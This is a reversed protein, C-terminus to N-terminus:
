FRGYKQRLRHGVVEAVTNCLFTFLFLLAGSLFLVRYLTGGHPAEPIEVAICASITRMGNFPSLDMIPTNGTAMLVIMTEGIARGFGLMLAAFIGPAAAPLVVRYTTQWRSAGLAESAAWLSKPVNSLADEAITFIVPVVAFGMAFGVVLANRPDYRLGLTGDLWAQVDGGFVAAEIVPGLTVALLFALALGPVTALVMRPGSSWRVRTPRPLARWALVLVVFGAVFAPTLTFVETLHREVLPSLWLAALLGIVVSPLAAMIEIVPKVVGRLGPSLFLATYVAAAIALPISFLLAYLVGKLSGFILTTISLKPEFDNSGGTSQWKLRPETAGEYWVPLFLTTPTVEPHPADLDFAALAGGEVAVFFGDNKPAFAVAEPRAAVRPTACLVRATTSHYFGGTGDAAYALFGKNRPAEDLATVPATLPPFDRIRRLSWNTAEPTPRVGFWGSLAGGADGVLLTEEGLLVRLATVPRDGAHISEFLEPASTWGLDWRLVRGDDLGAYVRFRDLFSAVEVSTARAGDPMDPLRAVRPSGLGGLRARVVHLEHGDGAVVLLNQERAVVGAVLTVPRGDALIPEPELPAVSTEVSRNAADDYAVQTRLEAMALRGDATGGLVLAPDATVAAAALGTPAGGPLLSTRSRVEGTAADLITVGETRDVVALTARYEDAALALPARGVRSVRVDSSPAVDATALLPLAECGM